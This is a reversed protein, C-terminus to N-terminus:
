NSILEVTTLIRYFTAENMEFPLEDEVDSTSDPKEVDGTPGHYFRCVISCQGVRERILFAASFDVQGAYGGAKYYIGTSTHGRLGKWLNGSLVSAQERMGQLGLIDWKISDVKTNIRLASDDAGESQAPEFHENKAVKAFTAKTSYIEVLSVFGWSSDPSEFGLMIARSSDCDEEECNQRREVRLDLEPPYKFRLGFRKSSFTKWKTIDDTVPHNLYPTSPFDSYSHYRFWIGITTDRFVRWGNNLEDPSLYSSDIQTPREEAAIDARVLAMASDLQAKSWKTWSSDQSPKQTQSASTSVMLVFTVFSTLTIRLM